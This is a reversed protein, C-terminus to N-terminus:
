PRAPKLATAGLKTSAVRRPRLLKTACWSSRFARCDVKGVLLLAVEFAKGGPQLDAPDPAAEAATVGALRIGLRAPGSAACILACSLTVAEPLFSASWSFELALLMREIGIRPQLLLREVVRRRVRRIIEAPAIVAQEIDRRRLIGVHAPKRIGFPM